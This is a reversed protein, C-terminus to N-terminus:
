ISRILFEKLEIADDTLQSDFEYIFDGKIERMNEYLDRQAQFLNEGFGILSWVPHTILINGDQLEYNFIAGYLEIEKLINVKRNKLAKKTDNIKDLAADISSEDELDVTLYENTYSDYFEIKDKESLANNETDSVEKTEVFQQLSSSDLVPINIYDNKMM